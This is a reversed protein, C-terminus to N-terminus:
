GVETPIGAFTGNGDGIGAITGNVGGGDVWQYTGNWSSARYLYINHHHNATDKTRALM